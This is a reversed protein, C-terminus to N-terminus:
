RNLTKKAENWDLLREPNSRVKEFREMVLEQHEEPIKYSDAEKIVGLNKAEEESLVRASINMRQLMETLLKFEKKSKPTIVISDM